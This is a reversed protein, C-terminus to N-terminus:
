WEQTGRELLGALEQVDTGLWLEYRKAQQALQQLVDMHAAFTAEDWRDVSEEMLKSWTIAKSRPQLQSRPRSDAVTPFYIATVRGAQGWGVAVDAMAIQNKGFSGSRLHPRLGPLLNVTHPRITLTEGPTPLAYIGDPRAQLLVVDNGLYWWGAQLLTLGTTTKGSGSRGVLLITQSHDPAAAAFGHVLFLGKQRLLPALSVWLLDDFRGSQLLQPTLWAKLPTPPHAPNPLSVFGGEPFYLGYGDTDQQYVTLPAPFPASYLIPMQPRAPITETLYLHYEVLPNVATQTALGPWTGVVRQCIEHLRPENAILQVSLGPFNLLVSM